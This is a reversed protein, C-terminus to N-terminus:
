NAHEEEGEENENAEAEDAPQGRAIDAELKKLHHAIQELKYNISMTTLKFEHCRDQDGNLIFDEKESMKKSLMGSKPYFLRLYHDLGKSKDLAASVISLDQHGNAIKSDAYTLFAECNKNLQNYEDTLRKRADVDDNTQLVRADRKFKKLAVFPCEGLKTTVVGLRQKKRQPGGGGQNNPESDRSQMVKALSTLVLVGTASEENGKIVAKASKKQRNRGGESKHGHGQTRNRANNGVKAIKKLDRPLPSVVALGKTATPLVHFPTARLIVNCKKKYVDYTKTFPDEAVTRMQKFEYFSYRGVLVKQKMKEFEERKRAERDLRCMKKAEESMRGRECKDLRKIRAMQVSNEKSTLFEVPRHVMWKTADNLQTSTLITGRPLGSICAM